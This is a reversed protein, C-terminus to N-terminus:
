SAAAASLAAYNVNTSSLAALSRRHLLLLSLMQSLLPRDDVEM